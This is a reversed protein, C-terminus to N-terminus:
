IIIAYIYIFIISNNFIFVIYCKGVFFTFNVEEIYFNVVDDVVEVKNVVGRLLLRLMDIDHLVYGTLLRVEVVVM